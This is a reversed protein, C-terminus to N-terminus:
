SADHRGGHVGANRISDSRDSMRKAGDLNSSIGLADDAAASPERTGGELDQRLMEMMLEDLRKGDVVQFQRLRGVNKFGAVELARICAKNEVTVSASVRNLGLVHFCLHVALKAMDKGIGRGRFRDDGILFSLEASESVADIGYISFFGVPTNTCKDEIILDLDDHVKIFFSEILHEQTQTSGPDQMYKSVEADNFWRLLLPIDDLSVSRGIIGGMEHHHQERVAMPMLGCRQVAADLIMRYMERHTMGHASASRAFGSDSNIGPNPNVELVTPGDKGLRFDVRAYDRCGMVQFAKLALEQVRSKIDPDLEAPCVGRTGQYEPSSPVWKAAYDVIRNRGEQLDFVIESIPLVEVRPLNGILAVNLERGDIYEEVIVPQRHRGIIHAARARLAEEDNVVSGQDIGISADERLPKVIVPYTISRDLAQDADHLIVHAPTPIGHGCLVDKCRGKDLCLSLTSPDSGTYPIDLMELFGAAYAEGLAKGQFGECLNFVIDLSGRELVSFLSRSARMPISEHEPGLAEQVLGVTTLVENDSILDTEAGEDQVDVSNYLIGVKL